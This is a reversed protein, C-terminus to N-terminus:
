LNSNMARHIILQCLHERAGVGRLVQERVFRWRLEIHRTRRSYTPNTALVHAAQNDIGFRLKVDQQRLVEQLINSAATEETTAECAAVYEAEAMSFAIVSQRRFMWSVAGGGLTFVFGTTSKRSEPANAWDSDRFRTQTSTHSGM